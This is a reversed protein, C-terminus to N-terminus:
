MHSQCLLFCTSDDKSIIFLKYIASRCPRRACSKGEKKFAIHIKSSYFPKVNGAGTTLMIINKNQFVSFCSFAPFSLGWCVPLCCLTNNYSGSGSMYPWPLSDKHARTWILMPSQENNDMGNDRSMIFAGPKKNIHDSRLYTDAYLILM